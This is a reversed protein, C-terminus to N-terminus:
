IQPGHWHRQPLMSHHLIRSVLIGKTTQRYFIIHSGHEHRRLGPRIEDCARGLFPTATLQLCCTELESLYRDAQPEGWTRITYAGISVLDAEAQRTFRLTAM